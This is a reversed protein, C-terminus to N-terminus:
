RHDLRRGTAASAVEALLMAGIVVVIDIFATLAFVATLWRLIFQAAPTLAAILDTGGLLLLAASLAALFGAV